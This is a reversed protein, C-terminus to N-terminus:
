TTYRLSFVAVCTKNNPAQHDTCRDAFDSGPEINEKQPQLSGCLVEKNSLIPIDGIM